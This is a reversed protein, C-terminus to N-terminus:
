REKLYQDGKFYKGGNEVLFNIVKYLLFLFLFLLYESSSDLKNMPMYECTHVSVAAMIKVM